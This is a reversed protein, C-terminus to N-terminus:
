DIAPTLKPPEAGRKKSIDPWRRQFEAIESLRAYFVDTHVGREVLRAYAAKLREFQITDSGRNLAVYLAGSIEELKLVPVFVSCDLSHAECFPQLGGDSVPFLDIRGLM